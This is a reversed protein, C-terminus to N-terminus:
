ADLGILPIDEPHEVVYQYQVHYTEQAQLRLAWQCFGPQSAAIPPDAELVQIQIDETQSTPIQEIVNIEIAHAFSNKLTLRYTRLDRCTDGVRTDRHVLERQVFVREDLGLSMLFSEGPAVYDLRERGIYGGSRFLYVTGALLPRQELPNTLQAQLYPASSRQPLAVYTFRGTLCFEDLPVRHQRDSSVIKVRKAASAGIVAQTTLGPQTKCIEEEPNEPPIESGPVAGLMRYTEDLIPSRTKVKPRAVYRGESEGNKQSLHIRWLGPKPIDPDKEPTATSVQLDVEDWDEGTTQRVQAACCIQLTPEADDLRVEYVPIWEAQNVTYIIDFELVGAQQVQLPLYLRYQRVGEQAQAQHFHQRATQLQQDLNQKHREQQAIEAAVQRYQQDIFHLIEAVDDLQAARQALGLAFTRPSREALSELFAQQLALAALQDKANRFADELEHLHDAIAQMHTQAQDSQEVTEIEPTQLIVQATGHPHVQVSEPQLVAPMDEVVLVMSPQDVKVQGRRVVRAQNPYVTVAVIQTEVPASAVQSSAYPMQVIPSEPM